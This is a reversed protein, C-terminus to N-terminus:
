FNQDFSLNQNQYQNQMNSRMQNFPGCYTSNFGWVMLILGINLVVQAMITTGKTLASLQTNSMVFLAILISMLAIQLLTFMITGASFLRSRSLGFVIGQKPMKRSKVYLLIMCNIATLALAATFLGIETGEKIYSETSFIHQTVLLFNTLSILSYSTILLSSSTTFKIQNGQPSYSM